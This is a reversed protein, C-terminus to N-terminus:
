EETVIKKLPTSIELNRGQTSTSIIVSCKDAPMTWIPVRFGLELHGLIRDPKGCGHAM